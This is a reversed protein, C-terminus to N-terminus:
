EETANQFLGGHKDRNQAHTCRGDKAGTTGTLSAQWLPCRHIRARSHARPATSGTELLCDEMKDLYEVYVDDLLAEMVPEVRAMAWLQPFLRDAIRHPKKRKPLPIGLDGLGISPYRPECGAPPKM